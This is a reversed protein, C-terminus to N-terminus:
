RRTPRYAKGRYMFVRAIIFPEHNIELTPMPEVSEFRPAIQEMAGSAVTEPIMIIADDGGHDSMASLFDYGRCDDGLCIVDRKGHLAYDIKASEYWRRSVVFLGTENDLGRERMYTAVDSWEVMEALPDNMDPAFAKVPALIKPWACLTIIAAVIVLDFIISSKLWNRISRSCAEFPNAMYRGLLPFLLLYGPAAWHFLPTRDSWVSILTFAAIPGIGLCILLWSGSDATGKRADRLTAAVLPAWIWPAIFVAQGALVVFPMWPRFTRTAARAGQFALSAWGHEINWAIAPSVVMLGIVAGLYPWPTALWRRHPASTFLFLGAGAFLFVGHLKSLTALGGFLGALLWLLPSGGPVVLVRALCLAGALLAVDLPGDPLVWTGTTVGLVPSCNMAAAALLGAAPSFLTKGLQYTLWTSIAFLAIFPARVIAASEGGFITAAAHALWWALPPHDFYGPEWHRGIAVMYTEDIGLGTTAAFVARALAGGLVLLLVARTYDTNHAADATM